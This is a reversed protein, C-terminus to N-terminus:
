LTIESIGMRIVGSRESKGMGFPATRRNIFLKVGDWAHPPKEKKRRSGGVMRGVDAFLQSKM